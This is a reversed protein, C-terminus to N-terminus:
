LWSINASVPLLSLTCKVTAPTRCLPFSVSVKGTHRNICRRCSMSGGSQSSESVLGIPKWRHKVESQKSLTDLLTGTPLSQGMFCVVFGSWRLKWWLTVLIFVIDTNCLTSNIFTDCDIVWLDLTQFVSQTPMHRVTWHKPLILHDFPRTNHSIYNITFTRLYIGSQFQFQSNNIM